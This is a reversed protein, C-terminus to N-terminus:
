IKARTRSCPPFLSHLWPPIITIADMSGLGLHTYIQESLPVNKHLIREREREKGREGEREGEEEGM